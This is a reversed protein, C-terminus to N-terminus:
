THRRFIRIDVEGRYDEQTLAKLGFNLTRERATETCMFSAVPKFETAGELVPQYFSMEAPYTQPSDLYREYDWSSLIIYEYDSEKLRQLDPPLYDVHKFEDPVYVFLTAAIRANPDLNESLWQAAYYRNDNQSSIIGSVAYTVILLVIISGVIRRVTVQRIKALLQEFGLAAILMSAPTMIMLHNGMKIKILFGFVIVTLVVWGLPVYWMYRQRRHVGTKPQAASIIGTLFLPLSLGYGNKGWINAADWLGTITQLHVFWTFHLFGPHSTTYHQLEGMAGSLFEEMSLVSYPTGAVFALAYVALSLSMVQIRHQLTTGSAYLFYLLLLFPLLMGAPYKASTAFGAAAMAYMFDMTRSTNLYKIFLYLTLTVLMVMMPDEKAISSFWLYYPNIAMLLAAYLALREGGLVRGMLYVLVITCLTFIAALVRAILVYDTFSHLTIIKSTLTFTLYMIYYFLSPEDFFHPNMDGTHMMNYAIEVLMSEAIHFAKLGSFETNDTVLGWTLKGSQLVMSLLLISTLIVHHRQIRM